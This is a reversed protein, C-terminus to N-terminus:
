WRLRMFIYDREYRFKIKFVTDTWSYVCHRNPMEIHKEVWEILEIRHTRPDDENLQIVIEHWGPRTDKWHISMAM